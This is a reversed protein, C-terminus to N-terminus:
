NTENLSVAKSVDVAVGGVVCVRAGLCDISLFLLVCMARVNLTHTHAGHAVWTEKEDRRLLVGVPVSGVSQGFARRENSAGTM